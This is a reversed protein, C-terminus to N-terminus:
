ASSRIPRRQMFWCPTGIVSAEAIVQFDFRQYFTVNIPKDTELYAVAGAADMRESFVRMLASGIGQGQLELDVALPGVHWHPEAPDHKGWVGLWRLVRGATPLGLALVQPLIRLQDRLTITCGGPPLMGCVGVITGDTRRAVLTHSLDKVAFAAAMLQRQNHIRVAGDAGYAAVHMPNDRMGRAVVDLVAPLERPTMVSIDLHGVNGKVQRLTDTHVADMTTSMETTNKM